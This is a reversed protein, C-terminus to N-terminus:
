CRAQSRGARACRGARRGSTSPWPTPAVPPPPTSTSTSPLSFIARAGVTSGTRAIAEDYPRAGFDPAKDPDALKEALAEYEGAQMSALNKREPRLASAEYCYTPILLENAIREALQRALEACV